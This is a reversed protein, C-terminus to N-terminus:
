QEPLLDALELEIGNVLGGLCRQPRKHLEERAPHLQDDTGVGLVHGHDDLWNAAPQLLGVVDDVAIVQLQHLHSLRQPPQQIRQVDRGVEVLM